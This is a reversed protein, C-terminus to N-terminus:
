HGVSIIALAGSFIIRVTNLKAVPAFTELYDIGYSQTYGKAVLRAKYRNLSGHSNYKLSFVWKCGVLKYKDSMPVLEWTRNKILATMEDDVAKKWEKHSLAEYINRPIVHNDLDATFTKFKCSLRDYNVVNCLPHKISCVTSNLLRHFPTKTCERTGKRLAIPLELSGTNDEAPMPSLHQLDNHSGQVRGRRSYVQMHSPAPSLLQQQPEGPEIGEDSTLQSNIDM